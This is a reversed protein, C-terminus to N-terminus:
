LRHRENLFCGTCDTVKLALRESQQMAIARRHDFLVREAQRAGEV